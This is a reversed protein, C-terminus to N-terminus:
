RCCGMITGSATAVSTFRSGLPACEDRVEETVITGDAKTRRAVSVHQEILDPFQRKLFRRIKDLRTGTHRTAWVHGYNYGLDKPGGHSEFHWAGGFLKRERDRQKFAPYRFEEPGYAPFWFVTWEAPRTLPCGPTARNIRGDFDLAYGYRILALDDEDFKELDPRRRAITRSNFRDPRLPYVRVDPHHGRSSYDVVGWEDVQVSFREGYGAAERVVLVCPAPKTKSQSRLEFVRGNALQSKWTM